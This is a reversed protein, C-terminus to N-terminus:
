IIIMTNGKSNDESITINCIKKWVAYLDLSSEEEYYDGVYYQAKGNETTSWGLLEYGERSINAGKINIGSNLYKTQSFTTETGDNLYYCITYKTTSTGDIDIDISKVGNLTALTVRYTGNDVAIFENPNDGPYSSGNAYEGNFMPMDLIYVDTSEESGYRNTIDNRLYEEYSIGNNSAEQQLYYREGPIIDDFSFGEREELRQEMEKITMGDEYDEGLWDILYDEYSLKQTEAFHKADERETM